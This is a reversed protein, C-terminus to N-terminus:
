IEREFEYSIKPAASIGVLNSAVWILTPLSVSRVVPGNRCLLMGTGLPVTPKGVSIREVKVMKTAIQFCSEFADLGGVFHLSYGVVEV